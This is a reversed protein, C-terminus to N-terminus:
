EVCDTICDQYITCGVIQSPQFYDMMYHLGDHWILCCLIWLLLMACLTRKKLSKKCSRMTNHILEITSPLRSESAIWRQVELHLRHSACSVHPIEILSAILKDALCIDAIQCIAWDHLNVEFLHFIDENFRVHVEATFAASLEQDADDDQQPKAMPSVALLVHRHIKWFLSAKWTRLILVTSCVFCDQM